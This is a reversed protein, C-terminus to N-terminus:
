NLPIGLYRGEDKNVRTYKLGPNEKNKSMYDDFMGVYNHERHTKHCTRSMYM